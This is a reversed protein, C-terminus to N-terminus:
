TQYISVRNNERSGHEKPQCINRIDIASTGLERPFTQARSLRKISIEACDSLPIERVSLFPWSQQKILESELTGWMGSANSTLVARAVLEQPRTARVVRVVKVISLM